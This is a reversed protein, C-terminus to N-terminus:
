MISTYHSSIPHAVPSQLLFQFPPATYVGLELMHHPLEHWLNVQTSNASVKVPYAVEVDWEGLEHYQSQRHIAVMATNGTPNEEPQHHSHGRGPSIPRSSWQSHRRWRFTTCVFLPRKPGASISRKGESCDVGRREVKGGSQTIRSPSPQFNKSVVLKLDVQGGSDSAM